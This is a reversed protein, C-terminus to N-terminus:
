KQLEKCYFESEDLEWLQKILSKAREGLVQKNIEAFVVLQEQPTTNWMMAHYGFHMRHEIPRLNKKNHVKFGTETRSKPYIHHTDIMGVPNRLRFLVARLVKSMNKM